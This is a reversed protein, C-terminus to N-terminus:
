ENRMEENRRDKQEDMVIEYKGDDIDKEADYKTKKKLISFKINSYITAACVAKNM